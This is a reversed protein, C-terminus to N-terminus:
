RIKPYPLQLKYKNGIIKFGVLNLFDMIFNTDYFELDKSLYNSSVATAVYKWDGESGLFVINLGNFPVKFYGSSYCFIFNYKGKNLNVFLSGIAIRKDENLETTVINYNMWKNSDYHEKSKIIKEEFIENIFARKPNAIGMLIIIDNLISQFDQIEKNLYYNLNSNFVLTKFYSLTFLNSVTSRKQASFEKLLIDYSTPLGLLLYELDPIEEINRLHSSKILYLLSFLFFLFINFKYM